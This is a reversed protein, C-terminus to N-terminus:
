CKLKVSKKIQNKLSIKKYFTKMIINNNMLFHYSGMNSGFVPNNHLADPGFGYELPIIMDRGSCIAIRKKYTKSIIYDDGLFSAKLFDNVIDDYEDWRIHKYYESYDMMIDSIQNYHFCIGGYGEVYETDGEKVIDYKYDSTMNFGSGTTINKKTKDNLLKNFLNETYHVDDDIIILHHDTLKNDRMYKAGGCYKTLPGCDETYNIVIKKLYKIKKYYKKPVIYDSIRMKKYRRCVNIIIKQCSFKSLYSINDMLYEIRTPTTTMSLIYKQNNM